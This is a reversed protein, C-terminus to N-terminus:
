PESRTDRCMANELMPESALLRANEALAFFRIKM